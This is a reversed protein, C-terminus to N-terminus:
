SNINNRMFSIQLGQGDAYSLTDFLRPKGKGHYNLQKRRLENMIEGGGGKVSYSVM